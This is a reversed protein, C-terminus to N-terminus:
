STGCFRHVTKKRNRYRNKEPKLEPIISGKSGKMAHKGWIDLESDNASHADQLFIVPILLKHAKKVLAVINPVINRARESGLKGTVFDNLMDAVILVTKM